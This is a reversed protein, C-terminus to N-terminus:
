WRIFKTRWGFEATVKLSGRVVPCASLAAKTGQCARPSVSPATGPWSGRCGRGWLLQLARTWGLGLSVSFQLPALMVQQPCVLLLQVLDSSGLAVGQEQQHGVPWTGCFWGAEAWSCCGAGAGGGPAGSAQGWPFWGLEAGPIWLLVVCVRSSGCLPIGASPFLVM